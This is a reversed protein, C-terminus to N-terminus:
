RHRASAGPMTLRRLPDITVTELMHPRTPADHSAAYEALLAASMPRVRASAYSSPGLPTRTFQLAGPTMSVRIISSCLACVVAASASSVGSPRSPVGCSTACAAANRTESAAANMVPCTSPTSPPYRYLPM